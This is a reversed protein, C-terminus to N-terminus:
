STRAAGVPAGPAIRRVARTRLTRTRLEIARLARHAAAEVRVRPPAGLGSRPYGFTDLADGALAEFLQVEHPALAERWDRVGATPPRRVGQVHGTHRLGVILAAAREHYDLMAADFPLAFFDCVVRLTREPHSVLDEYRIEHYRGPGLRQGAARARLVRTRWFLTAAAFRDPGFDMTVLSPVVDRGDRVLHLFRSGPFADALLDIELVHSPTRDAARPKGHEVAYAEYLRGLAEPVSVPAPDRRVSDLRAAPLHWDAFSPDAAIDALLRDVDIPQGGSPRRYRARRHLAPAVFYSEPPVALGPHSDLMARLMTTGSRVCGLAFLFPAASTPDEAERGAAEARM